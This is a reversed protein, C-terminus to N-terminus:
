NWFHRQAFAHGSGAKLYREFALAKGHDRFAVYYTVLCWPRDALTHKSKGDNRTALRQKLDDTFGVYRKTPDKESVLLYVYHM